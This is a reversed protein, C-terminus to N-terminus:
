DPLTLRVFYYGEAAEELIDMEWGAAECHQRLTEPDIYLWTYPEGKIGKYELQYWVEGFYASEEAKLNATGIDAYKLDSTDFLIQGGPALLGKVQVLFRDLGELSGVFGIGNMLLLITDFQEGKLTFLDGVRADKVGQKKMLDVCEPSIDIGTVELGLENQLFLSICGAGAGADLVKGQVLVCALEDMISFDDYGRFFLESPYPTVEGDRTNVKILTREGSEYHERLALGLPLWAPFPM